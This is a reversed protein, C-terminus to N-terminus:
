SLSNYIRKGLDVNEFRYSILSRNIKLWINGVSLLDGIHPIGVIVYGSEGKLLALSRFTLKKAYSLAM